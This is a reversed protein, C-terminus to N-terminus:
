SVWKWSRRSRIDTITSASVGYVRALTHRDGYTPTIKRIRRVQEETLVSKPHDPGRRYSQRSEAKGASHAQRILSAVRAYDGPLVLGRAENLLVILTETM